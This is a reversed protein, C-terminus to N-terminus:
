AAKHASRALDGSALQEVQAASHRVSDLVRRLSDVAQQDGWQKAWALLTAYRAIAYHQIAQVCAVLGADKLSGADGAEALVDDTEKLLGLIADCTAGQPEQGLARFVEALKTIRDRTVDIYASLAQKVLASQASSVFSPLSKLTQQEAYYMDKLFHLFLENFTRM